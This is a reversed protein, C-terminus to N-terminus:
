EPCTALNIGAKSVNMCICRPLHSQWGNEYNVVPFDELQVVKTDVPNDNMDYLPPSVGLGVDTLRPTMQAGRQEFICSGPVSRRVPQTAANPLAVTAQRSPREIYGLPANGPMGIFCTNGDDANDGVMFPTPTAVPPPRSRQNM